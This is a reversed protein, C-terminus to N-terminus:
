FNRKDKYDDLAVWDFMTTDVQGLLKNSFTQTYSELRPFSLRKTKM